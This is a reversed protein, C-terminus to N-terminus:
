FFLLKLSYATVYRLEATLSKLYILLWYLRTKIVFNVKTIVGAEQKEVGWRWGLNWDSPFLQCGQGVGAVNQRRNKNTERTRKEKGGIKRRGECVTEEVCTRM